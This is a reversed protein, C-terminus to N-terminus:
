KILGRKKGHLYLSPPIQLYPNPDLGAAIPGAIEDHLTQLALRQGIWVFRRVAVEPPVWEWNVHMPTLEIQASESVHVGFCPVLYITDEEPSYFTNVFDINWVATPTLGTQEQLERTAAQVASEKKKIRGHVAQWTNGLELGPTRLLTLYYARNESICFPYVDVVDSAVIEPM